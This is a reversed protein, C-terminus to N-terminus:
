MGYRPQNQLVSIFQEICMRIFSDVGMYKRLIYMMSTEEKIPVLKVDPGFRNQLEKQLSCNSIHDILGLEKARKGSWFEGSFLRTSDGGEGETEHLKDGRRTRVVEIFQDHIDKQASSLIAIDSPRTASFPDLIAKNEGQTYIRREIGHAKMFDCFGFSSSIVGISGVISSNSAYIEDGACALWYGGSAAVDEVFTLVPINKESALDRIHHFIRETQVPSGGPCNVVLAVADVGRTHFATDLPKELRKVNLNGDQEPSITGHLHVVAVIPPKVYPTATFFQEFFTM